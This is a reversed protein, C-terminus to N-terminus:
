ASQEHSEGQKRKRRGLRWVALRLKDANASVM